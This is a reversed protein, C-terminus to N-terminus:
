EAERSEDTVAIRQDHHVAHKSIKCAVVYAARAPAARDRAGRVEGPNPVRADWSDANTGGRTRGSLQASM